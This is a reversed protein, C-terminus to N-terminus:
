AGARRRKWIVEYGPEPHRPVLCALVLSLCAFGAGILFVAAPNKLWVLGLAAPLFVAAIHNISFATAATQTIDAPDAIKQFYTKSAMSMAFFAHDILYLAAAMWPDQVFAYAVFVLTLGAYELTLAARDGFRVILAGARPAVMMNFLHNVLFLVTIAPVSYHFKEVMMFGAFVVFIQRRAGELFSLAYYLWYRGRLVINRHQQVHQPFLPFAGAIVLMAGFSVAGAILYIPAYDLHLGATLAFIMAFVALASFSEAAIIRGLGTAAEGVPLWQLSLSQQMTDYYHFGFSMLLTTAYLGYESPFLGTLATGIALLALSLLALHQERMMLLPVVVGIALLGPIERVSQLIGIERGTFHAANVGFNNLLTMWTQFSVQNAAAMVMLMPVPSRWGLGRPAPPVAVTQSSSM